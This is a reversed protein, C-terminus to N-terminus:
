APRNLPVPLYIDIEAEADPAAGPGSRYVEYFPPRPCPAVVGRQRFATTDLARRYTASLTDFTGHHTTRWAWLGGLTEYRLPLDGAELLDQTHPQLAAAPAAVCADYRLREPPVHAPDDYVVGILQASDALGRSHTYDLLRNWTHNLTRFSGSHRLCVVSLPGFQVFTYLQQGSTVVTDRAPATVQETRHHAAM